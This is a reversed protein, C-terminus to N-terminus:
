NSKCENKVNNKKKIMLPFEHISRAKAMPYEKLIVRIDKQCTGMKRENELHVKVKPVM